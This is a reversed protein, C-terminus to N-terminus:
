TVGILSFAPLKKLERQNMIKRVREVDKWRGQGAYINSLIVYPTPSNPELKLLKEAMEEGLKSESHCMCAGLLSSFVSGSPEPIEQLLERAEDLRGSRGLLDVMCSFHKTTPSMGYVLKMLKFIERGKDVQGSHSCVSLICNFTVPNPQVNKELMQNFLDFADKHEGNRGYGSIMANWIAPDNPKIEFKDFVRRAWTPQGCKMYMDILATAFFEDDSIDTRVGHAHIEKGCHLALMASCVPLLSTISKLSPLLGASLMKKFFLYAEFDKGLQSFGSIMSNWTASDPKLGESELQMFLGISNESQGNLMMGAIMSNWTILNRRDNLDKFLDYAAQWCGCKSYMDLLATGVMTDISMEIKVIFGHVQRGFQIYRIHSCASLVSILTVSNPERYSRKIEKFVDLVLLPVGNQVLGSVFANYCVLNKYQIQEFAKSALMLERCDAYMTVLSTAAYIDQEVGIKIAWCHIQHGEKVDQCASLLCAITVSDPRLWPMSVLRFIRFAEKCYGNQSFGSIAVNLSAINPEPIEDFVKIASDLLHFKMYMDALTTATYMDAHFGVKLLHAHLIQGHPRSKLKVCSKLLSPFTFKGPRFSRAHFHSYLCLAEGYLGDAVLKTIERKM